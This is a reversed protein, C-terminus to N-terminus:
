LKELLKISRARVAEDPAKEIAIELMKRARNVKGLRTYAIGQCYYFHYFDKKLKIAKKFYKVAGSFNENELAKKGLGYHYFPNSLMYRQSYKEFKAAEKLHGLKTNVLGLFHCTLADNPRVELSKELLDLSKELNGKMRQYLALNRWAESCGPDTEVARQLYILSKEPNGRALHDVGLNNYYYAFVQTDSMEWIDAHSLEPQNPLLEIVYLRDNIRAILNIHQLRVIVKGIAEWNPITEVRNFRIDLDLERGLAAVLFAFSLCNGRKLEFAKGASLTEKASYRFKLGNENLLLADILANLRKNDGLSRDIGHILFARMSETVRLLEQSPIISPEMSEAAPNALLIIPALFFLVTAKWYM